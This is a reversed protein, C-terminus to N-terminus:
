LNVNISLCLPKDLSRKNRLRRRCWDKVSFLCSSCCNATNPDFCTWVSQEMPQTWQNRFKVHLICISIPLNVKNSFLLTCFTFWSWEKYVAYPGCVMDIENCIGKWKVCYLSKLKIALFNFSSYPLSVPLVLM